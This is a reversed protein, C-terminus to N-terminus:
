ISSIFFHNYYIVATTMKGCMRVEELTTMSVGYGEIGEQTSAVSQDLEKFLSPFQPSSDSPLIFSMEKGYYRALQVEPIVKKLIKCVAQEDSNEEM